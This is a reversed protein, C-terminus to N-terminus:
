ITSPEKEFWFRCRMHLHYFFSLFACRFSRYKSFLLKDLSENSVYEYVLLKKTGHVSYGLLNVVNQHQVCALLKAENQFEKKGQNSTQSLRKVAIERGDSLRGKFVPGFGGQGFKHTSHFDKTAAVLTEFPFHKQEREAIKQLDEAVKQLDEENKRRSIWSGTFLLGLFCFGMLLNSSFRDPDHMKGKGSGFKFIKILNQLFNKPKIM